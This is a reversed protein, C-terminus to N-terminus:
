GAAEGTIDKLAKAAAPTVSEVLSRVLHALAEGEIPAEYPEGVTQADKRFAEDKSMEAFAKRLVQLRDEPTGPPAILPMGFMSSGHVLRSLPRQAEPVLDEILTVGKMVPQAQFLPVFAGSEILDRRRTFSTEATYIADLEKQEIALIVRATNDYGMIVNVPLGVEQLLKPGWALLTSQVLGGFLVKRSSTKFQAATTIGLDSRIWAASNTGGTSGIYGFKVPDFTANQIGLAPKVVWNRGPVALTLGDPPARLFMHNASVLGSAGQMNRVITKVDGPIFRGIHRALLRTGVDVGGGPNYGCIITITKGAFFDAAARAIVPAVLGAVCTIAAGKIAQRRTLLKGM